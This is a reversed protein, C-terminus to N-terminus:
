SILYDLGALVSIGTLGFAAVFRLNPGYAVKEVPVAFMASAVAVSVASLGTMSTFSWGLLVSMMLLLPDIGFDVTGFLVLIVTATVFQHVGAFALVTMTGVAMLFLVWAPPALDALWNGFGSAALVVVLVQGLAMAATLLSIEGRVAAMGSASQSVAMKLRGGGQCVLSVFCLVPVGLVLCQLTGLPTATNLAFVVAAALTVPPLVPVFAALARGLGAMGVARTYMLHAMMLGLANLSLGLALVQWLPVQPLHEYSIAMAIWFPSWLCALCMGRQCAEAASLRTEFPADRGVIPAFVALVGVVLVSGLVSTGVLLGSTREDDRLRDVLRRAQTIEPRLDATARLLSLTGFFAAFIVSKEVGFWFASWGGLWAALAVALLGLLGALIQMQRRVRTFVIAIYLILLGGSVAAVVQNTWFIRVLAMLWLLALLSEAAPLRSLRSM